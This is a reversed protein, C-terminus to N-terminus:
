SPDATKDAKECLVSIISLAEVVTEVNVNALRCQHDKIASVATQFSAIKRQSLKRSPSPPTTRCLSLEDNSNVKLNLIVPLSYAM